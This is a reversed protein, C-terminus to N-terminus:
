NKGIKVWVFGLLGANINAGNQLLIDIDNINWMHCARMFWTEGLADKVKVKEATAELLGKQQLKKFFIDNM